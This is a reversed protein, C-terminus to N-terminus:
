IQIWDTWKSAWKLRIKVVSNDAIAIQAIPDGHNASSGSNFVLLLGYDVPNNKTNPLDKCIGYIGSQITTDFDGADGKMGVPNGFLGELVSVIEPNKIAEKLSKKQIM